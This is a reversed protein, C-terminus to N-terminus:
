PLAEKRRRQHLTERMKWDLFLPPQLIGPQPLVKDRPHEGVLAPILHRLLLHGSCPQLLKMGLVLQQQDCVALDAGPTDAADQCVGCLERLLLGPCRRIQLPEGLHHPAGGGSAAVRIDELMERVIGVAVGSHMAL